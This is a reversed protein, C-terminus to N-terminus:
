HSRAIGMRFNEGEVGCALGAGLHICRKVDILDPFATQLRTGDNRVALSQINKSIM